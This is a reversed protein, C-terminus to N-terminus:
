LPYHVGTCDSGTRPAHTSIRQPAQHHARYRTAGRAPLTPQFETILGKLATWKLREGHPSRPNFDVIVKGPAVIRRTAGRAPLTPQFAQYARQVHRSHTTAGRAPLTPQFVLNYLYTEPKILREGHPSRPNFNQTRPSRSRSNTDSGTRPAHTSILQEPLLGDMLTTAGRAPLTPQFRSMCRTASAASRREGHPSRPNFHDATRKSDCANDDSGTRPAHTSIM